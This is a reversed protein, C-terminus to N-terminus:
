AYVLALVILIALMIGALIGIRRLETIIYPYRVAIPAAPISTRTSPAPAQPLSVAEEAQTVAQPQAVIVQPRLKGKKRKGHISHKGRSHRSKGSM